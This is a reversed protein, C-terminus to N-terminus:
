SLDKLSHGLNIRRISEALLSAVSIQRIPIGSMAPHMPITDTVVLETVRTNRFNKPAPGSLVAHTCYARVSEAGRAFLADIAKCLTGGTDAIDDIIVCNRGNVEGIINMVESENARPRRKDIIVLEADGVQKALSRARLVGGVDPSVIVLSDLHMANIDDAFHKTSYVNDVPINFFGQIQDAHLEITLLRDVGSTILMNAVVRASIPVRASRPRRDQRSYGFYPIIASISRASSRKMADVILLLEMLTDNAPSCTSQVIFVDQGRVNELLEVAIEGDSFKSVSIQGLPIPEGTKESLCRAIESALGINSNGSFLQMLYREPLIVRM